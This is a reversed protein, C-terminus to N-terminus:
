GAARGSIRCSSRTRGRHSRQFRLVADIYYNVGTPAGNNFTYRMLPENVLTRRDYMFYTGQYGIKASHGGTVYSWAARWNWPVNDYKAWPSRRAIRSTPVATCRGLTETVGILGMPADHPVQGSGVIGYSFRSVAADVLLRSSM